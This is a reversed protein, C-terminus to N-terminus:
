EAADRDSKKPEKQSPEQSSLTASESGNYDLKRKVQSQRQPTGLASSSTTPTDETSGDLVLQNIYDIGKKKRRPTLKALSKQANSVEM